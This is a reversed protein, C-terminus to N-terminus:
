EETKDEDETNESISEETPTETPLTAMSSISKGAKLNALIESIEENNPNLQQVRTFSEIAKTKEGLADYVIGLSYLANSYNTNLSVSKELLEKAKNLYEIKESRNTSETRAALIYNVNGKQFYFYPSNPDLKLAEDYSNIAWTGADDLIGFLNQYVYGRVSWNNISKPNLDTAIKAANVSNAVLNQMITSEEQTPTATLDQMKKLLQSLYAQSLQRFYLDSSSNLSAATELKKTAEEQRQYSRVRYALLSALLTLTDTIDDFNEADSFKREVAIVGLM